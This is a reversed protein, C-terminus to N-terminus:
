TDGSLLQLHDRETPGIVFARTCAHAVTPDHTTVIVTWPVEPGLVRSLVTHRSKPDLHDLAEDLLLCRPRAVIARAIALRQAQGASLNRGNTTLHTGLGDPLSSLDEWLDVTELARRVDALSVDTRGMCVNDLVTGDFIEAGRVLSMNERLSGLSLDRLPLGDVELHGRTPERLGYVLDILTSKGSGNPGIVAVRAGPEIDLSIPGLSKTNGDYAYEASAIRISLPRNVRELRATATRELPLDVLNGLKGMAAILDYFTELYKGLKAFGAVVSTLILEAAVLQGLTLAGSLVLFGGLGLLAATAIAQLALFAITQRFLIHFHAKRGEIYRHTLEDSRRMAFDAAGHGRFITPHRAMEEFWAVLAYKAESEKISTKAGGGGLGILIAVLALLLAVAFGLLAPHYLTLLIVGVIMQLAVFIGDLLFTAAGKQITLVDFFRNVLEPGYRKDFSSVAVHPLRDALDAAVRVFLRQQLREVVWTQTARLVAAFALAVLVLLSLIAIPQVLGGFAIASVLMQVGIPAALSALGIGVAYVFVISIGENELRLLHILRRVAMAAADVPRAEPSPEGSAVRAGPLNTVAM